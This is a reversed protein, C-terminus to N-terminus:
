KQEGDKLASTLRSYLQADTPDGSLYTLAAAFRQWVHESPPQIRSFETIAERMRTRFQEDTMGTRSVAVISFPEPLTRSAYLSWLAHIPKRKALDGSAGFIILSFGDDNTPM